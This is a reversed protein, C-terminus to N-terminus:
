VRGWKEKKVYSSSTSANCALSGPLSPPNQPPLVFSDILVAGLALVEGLVLVADYNLSGTILASDAGQVSNKSIHRSIEVKLQCFKVFDSHGIYTILGWM